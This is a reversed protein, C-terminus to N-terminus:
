ANGIRAEVAAFTTELETVRAQLSNITASSTRQIESVRDELADVRDKLCDHKQGTPIRKGCRHCKWDREAM